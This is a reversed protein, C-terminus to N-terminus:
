VVEEMVIKVINKGDEKAKEKSIVHFQTGFPILVEQQNEYSRNVRSIDSGSKKLRIEIVRPRKEVTGEAGLAVHRNNSKSTSMFSNEVYTEGKKFRDVFSDPEWRYVTIPETISNKKLYSQLLVAQAEHEQLLEKTAGKLEKNPKTQVSIGIVNKQKPHYIGTVFKNIDSRKTYYYVAFKEKLELTDPVHQRLELVQTKFTKYEQAMDAVEDKVGGSATPTKKTNQFQLYRTAAVEVQEEGPAPGKLEDFMTKAEVIDADTVKLQCVPSRKCIDPVKGEGVLKRKLAKLKDVGARGADVISLFTKKPNLLIEKSFKGVNKLFLAPDVITEKVILKGAKTVTKKLSTKFGQTITKTIAKKISSKAVNVSAKIGAKIGFKVGVKIGTKVATLPATAAGFTVVTAVDTVVGLALSIAREQAVTECGAAAYAISSFLDWITSIFPIWEVVSYIKAETEDVCSGPEEEVEQPAFMKLRQNGTKRGPVAFGGIKNNRYEIQFGDLQAFIFHNKDYAFLQIFNTSIPDKFRDATLEYWNGSKKRLTVVYEPNAKSRISSGEWFWYKSDGNQQTEVKIKSTVSNDFVLVKESQTDQIGFYIIERSSFGWKVNESSDCMACAIVRTHAEKNVYNKLSLKRSEQDSIVEDGVHRWNQGPSGNYETFYVQIRNGSRQKIGLVQNPYKKSRMNRDDWFFRQNDGGHYPWTIVDRNSIVDLATGYFRNWLTFYDHSVTISWKQSSSSRGVISSGSEEIKMNSNGSIIFNNEYTWTQEPSGNFSELSVQKSGSMRLVKNTYLKSRIAEGDWFWLQKKSMDYTEMQVSSESNTVIVKGSQKNIIFFYVRSASFTWKDNRQGNVQCGIVRTGNTTSFTEACLIPPIDRRRPRRVGEILDQDEPATWKQLYNGAVFTALNASGYDFGGEGRDVQLVKDPFKKSRINDDDWFWLQNDGGHYEWMIVQGNDAAHADLVNGSGRSTILFYNRALSLSWYQSPAHKPASIIVKNGVDVNLEATVQDDDSIAKILNEEYSWEQLLNANFSSLTVSGKNTIQDIKSATLVREPYKKSHIKAGAWFWYCEDENKEALEVTTEDRAKLVRGSAKNFILFFDRIREYYNWSTSLDDNCKFYQGVDYKTEINLNCQGTNPNNAKYTVSQCSDEELCQKMCEEKSIDPLEVGRPFLIRCHLEEGFLSEVTQEGEYEEDPNIDQRKVWQSNRKNIKGYM